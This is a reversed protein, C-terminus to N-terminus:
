CGKAAWLTVIDDREVTARANSLVEVRVDLTKGTIPAEASWETQAVQYGPGGPLHLWVERGRPVVWWSVRATDEDVRCAKLSVIPPKAPAPCANLALPLLAIPALLRTRM